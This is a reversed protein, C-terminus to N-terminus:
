HGVLARKRPNDELAPCLEDDDWDLPDGHAMQFNDKSEEVLATDVKTSTRRRHTTQKNTTRSAKEEVYFYLVRGSKSKKEKLEKASILEECEQAGVINELRGATESVILEEIEECFSPGFSVGEAELHDRWAFMFVSPKSNKASGRTNLKEVEEWKALAEPNKKVATHMRGNLARQKKNSARRRRRM